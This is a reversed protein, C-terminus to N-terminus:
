PTAPNEMPPRWVEGAQQGSRIEQVARRMAEEIPLTTYAANDAVPQRVESLLREQSAEIAQRRDYRMQNLNLPDVPPRTYIYVILAIILFIGITAIIGLFNAWFGPPSADHPEAGEPLQQPDAM